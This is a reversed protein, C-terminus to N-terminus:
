IKKKKEIETMTHLKNRQQQIKFSKYTHIKLFSIFCGTNTGLLTQVMKLSISAKHDVHGEGYARFNQAPLYYNKYFEICLLNM